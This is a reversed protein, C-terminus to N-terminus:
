TYSVKLAQERDFRAMALRILEDILDQKEIGSAEWLKPYMSIATFGPLTNIENLLVRGEATMFVDVRSLGECNLVACTKIAVEQIRKLEDDKLEAPIFLAAGDKDIYKAQYSYFGHKEAPILEGVTSARLNDLNGLVACELERGVVQEEVIVKSDFQFADDLAFKFEAASTVRHVGVSSGMNAPKVFLVPGLKNSINEYSFQNRNWSFITEFRAMDIGADRCIRKMLDKDMGVASGLVGPGVFPVHALKLLGQVTGDEGYPGHLVPFVVDLIQNDRGGGLSVLNAQGTGSSVLTVAQRHDPSIAPLAKATDSELLLAADECFCWSGTKDIGILSVEYKEPNLAKYVNRASLISVEHEASQGGFILGVRIKKTM